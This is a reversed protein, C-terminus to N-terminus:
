AIQKALAIAGLIGSRYGLEPPIIYKHIDDLLNAHQLYGKLEGQVVQRIMPFLFNRQMVGGGLIIRRPSLILIIASLASGIYGAEIEWFPDSDPISEAPIGFRRSISLGSALGEFCNGHFPCVGNFPDVEKDYPVRIHGMEPNLLGHLPRGDQIYGGGIGTGITLYLIPDYGQGAGWLYEGLASANVDTDLVISIHLERQLVDMLNVNQWGSKPTSTITSFTPSNPDLDLPGFSGIGIRNIQGSQVFPQFFNVVQELTEEAGATQIRTEALIREPSAGVMCIFKTGGAEIGGFLPSTPM